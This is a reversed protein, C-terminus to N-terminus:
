PTRGFRPRRREAFAAVGEAFDDTDFLRVQHEIELDLVRPTTPAPDALMSKIVGYAQAPGAALVTADALATHLADGAPVVQDVLGLELAEDADLVRPLMLLQRARAPGVRAPLSAFIGMDGALGVGTFAMSMRTTDGAIVRDCALALSAGAGYAAGEVAAVVPKPTDWLARIVRQAAEARPRSEAPSMRRMTSVDGGACFVRGAGSLVISRVVPDAAAEELVEALAIRLPIDIANRRDPRNLTIVRVAGDDHRLVTDPAAVADPSDSDPTVSDPTVSDPTVSDATTM